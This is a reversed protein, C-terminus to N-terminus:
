VTVEKLRESLQRMCEQKNQLKNKHDDCTATWGMPVWTIKIGYKLVQTGDMHLSLGRGWPEILFESEEISSL